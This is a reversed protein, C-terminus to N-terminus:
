AHLSPSWFKNYASTQKSDNVTLAVAYHMYRYLQCKAFCCLNGQMKSKMALGSFIIAVVGIMPNFVLSVLSWLIHDNIVEEASGSSTSEKNPQTKDEEQDSVDPAENKEEEEKNETDKANSSLETKESVQEKTKDEPEDIQIVLPYTENEAELLSQKEVASM